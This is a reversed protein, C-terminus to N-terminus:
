LRNAISFVDEGFYVFDRDLQSVCHLFASSTRRGPLLWDHLEIILLPTTAVWETNCSFLDAEGGEIDIKVLFPFCRAAHERYIRDVTVRPVSGDDAAGDAVRETRYGWHGIGPDTVRAFGETSALAGRITRVHLGQVNLELLAFNDQNPEIAVICAEPIITAFFLATAGINAGADVILPAKGTAKQRELFAKLEPSRRLRGLDYQRDVLIQQILAADTTKSRFYLKRSSNNGLVIDTSDYCGGASPRAPPPKPAIEDSM